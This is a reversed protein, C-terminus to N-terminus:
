CYMVGANKNATRIHVSFLGQLPKHLMEGQWVGNSSSESTSREGGAESQLFKMRFCVYVILSCDVSSRQFM